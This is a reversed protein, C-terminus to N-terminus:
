LEFPPTLDYQKFLDSLEDITMAMMDVAKRVSLYGKDISWEILERFKRSFLLPKDINVIDESVGNHRLLNDDVKNAETKSLLGVSVMRWKLAVSSVRLEQATVNLWEHLERGERDAWHKELVVLPMLLAAAFNDALQEVRKEKSSANEDNELHGPPMADWTLLHFLEHATDFNRRGVTESRNILITNMEPLQCAAGSVGPIGDINLVLIGFQDEIIKQLNDAPIEGLEYVAAVREGYLQAEEFSSASTLGIRPLILNEGVKKLESLHRYAAIWQGALNEFDNLRQRDVDYQRWSFRGEDGVLRFPDTFFDLGVNFIQSATILENASIKRVGSEISSITQRDNIGMATSLDGQSMGSAKRLTRFRKQITRSNM